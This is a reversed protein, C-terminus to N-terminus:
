KAVGTHLAFDFEASALFISPPVETVHSNDYRESRCRRDLSTTPKSATDCGARQFRELSQVKRKGQGQLCPDEKLNGGM